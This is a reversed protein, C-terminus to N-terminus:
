YGNMSKYISKKTREIYNDEYKKTTKDHISINNNIVQHRKICKLIKLQTLTIDDTIYTKSYADNFRYFNKNFRKLENQRYWKENLFIVNEKVDKLETCFLYADINAVISLSIISYDNMYSVRLFYDPLMINFHNNEKQLLYRENDNILNFRNINFEGTISSDDIGVDFATKNKKENVADNRVMELYVNNYQIQEGMHSQSHNDLIEFLKLHALLPSDFNVANGLLFIKPHTIYPIPERSRDVTEYITKLREWEHRIYDTPIALFEDVIMIPYERLVSSHLKLDSANHLDTIMGLVLEDECILMYDKCRKFFIRRDTNDNKNLIRYIDEVQEAMADWLDPHRVILMYKIYFNKSFENLFGIYNTTKGDTRNSISIYWDISTDMLKDLLLAHNYEPPINKRYDELFDNIKKIQKEEKSKFLPM